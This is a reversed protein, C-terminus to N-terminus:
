LLRFLGSSPDSHHNPGGGYMKRRKKDFQFFATKFAALNGIGGKKETVRSMCLDYLISAVGTAGGIGMVPIWGDPCLSSAALVSAVSLTAAKVAESLLWYNKDSINCTRGYFILLTAQQASLRAKAHLYEILKEIDARENHGTFLLEAIETELEETPMQELSGLNFIVQNLEAEILKLGKETYKSTVEDIREVNDRFCLWNQICKGQISKSSTPTDSILDFDKKPLLEQVLCVADQIENAHTFALIPQDWLDASLDIDTAGVSKIFGLKGAKQLKREEFAIKEILKPTIERKLSNLVFVEMYAAPLFERALSFCEIAKEDQEMFVFILGAYYLQFTDTGAELRKEADELAFKTNNHDLSFHEFESSILYFQTLLDGDTEDSCDLEDFYKSAFVYDEYYYYLLGIARKISATHIQSANLASLYNILRIAPAVSSFTRELLPNYILATQFAPYEIFLRYIFLSEYDVALACNLCTVAHYPLPSANYKRKRMAEQFASFAVSYYGVRYLARGYLAWDQRETLATSHAMALSIDLFGEYPRQTEIYSLGRHFLSPQIIGLEYSKNFDVLAENYRGSYFLVLGRYYFVMGDDSVIKLGNNFDVLAEKFRGTNFLAYGRSILAEHDDPFAALFKDLDAIADEYRASMQLAIGRTKLASHNHPDEAITKTALEINTSYLFDLPFGNSCILFMERDAKKTAM